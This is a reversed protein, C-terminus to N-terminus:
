KFPSILNVPYYAVSGTSATVKISKCFTLGHQLDLMEGKLKDEMIGTLMIHSSLHKLYFYHFNEPM